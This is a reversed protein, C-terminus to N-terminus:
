DGKKKEQSFFEVEKGNEKGEKRLSRGVLEALTYLSTLAGGACPALDEEEIEVYTRIYKKWCHVGLLYSFPASLNKGRGYGSLNPGGGWGPQFYPKIARKLARKDRQQPINGKIDPTRLCSIMGTYLM